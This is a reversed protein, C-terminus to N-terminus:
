SKSFLKRPLIFELNCNHAFLRDSNSFDNNRGAADGCYFSHKIDINILNLLEDYMGTRLKKRNIIM